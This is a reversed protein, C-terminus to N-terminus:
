VELVAVIRMDRPNVIVIEDQFVFYVYGRWEPQIEVLTEPVAIVHIDGRPVVTGISLNFDVHDVRPAGSAGIVTERIKTRQEDNLQVNGKMPVTANGQLGKLKSNQEPGQATNNRDRQREEASNAGNKSTNDQVTNPNRKENGQATAGKNSEDKNGKLNQSAKEDQGKLNQTAKEDQGKLGKQGEAPINTQASEGKPAMEGKPASQSMGTAGPTKAGTGPNVRTSANPANKTNAPNEQASALGTGALLALAAVGALLTNTKM